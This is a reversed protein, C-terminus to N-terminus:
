NNYLSLCTAVALKGRPNLKPTWRGQISPMVTNSRHWKDLTDIKHLGSMNRYENVQNEVQANVFISLLYLLWEPNNRRCCKKTWRKELFFFRVQRVDLNKLSKTMSRGSRWKADVQPHEWRKCPKAVISVFPNAAAFDVLKERM